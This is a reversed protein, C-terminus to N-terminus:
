ESCPCFQAPPFQIEAFDETVFIFQDSVTDFCYEVKWRNNERTVETKTIRTECNCTEM